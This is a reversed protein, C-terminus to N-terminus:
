KKNVQRETSSELRDYLQTNKDILCKPPSEFPISFREGWCCYKPKWGYPNHLILGKTLPAMVILFGIILGEVVVRGGFLERKVVQFVAILITLLTFWPYLMTLWTMHNRWARTDHSSRGYGLTFFNVAWSSLRESCKKKSADGRREITPPINNALFWACLILAVFIGVLASIQDGMFNQLSDNDWYLVKEFCGNGYNAVSDEIVHIAFVFLATVPYGFCRDRKTYFRPVVYLVAWVMLMPVAIHTLSHEDFWASSGRTPPCEANTTATEECWYYEGFAVIVCNCQNWQLNPRRGM